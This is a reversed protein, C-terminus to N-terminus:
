RHQINKAADIAASSGSQVFTSVIAVVAMCLALALRFSGFFGEKFSKYSRSM